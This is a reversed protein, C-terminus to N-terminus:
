SCVKQLEDTLSYNIQKALTIYTRIKTLLEATMGSELMSFHAIWDEPMIKAELPLLCDSQFYVM